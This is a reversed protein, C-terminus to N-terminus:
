SISKIQLGRERVVEKLCLTKVALAKVKGLGARQAIGRASVSDCFFLDHESQIRFAGSDVALAATGLCDLLNRLVRGNRQENGCLTIKSFFRSFSTLPCGDAEVHGSRQSKRSSPDGAWDSDSYGALEETVPDASQIRLKVHADQARLLYRTVRQLAEMAGTTPASLYSGFISVELQADARDSVYYM